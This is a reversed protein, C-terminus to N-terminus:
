CLELMKIIVLRAMVIKIGGGHNDSNEDRM